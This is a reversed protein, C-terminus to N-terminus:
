AYFMIAVSFIMLVTALLFVGWSLADFYGNKMTMWAKTAAAMGVLFLFMIFFFSVFYLLNKM